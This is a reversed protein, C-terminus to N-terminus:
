QICPRTGVCLSALCILGDSNAASFPKNCPWALLVPPELEFSGFERIIKLSLNKHAFNPTLAAPHIVKKQNTPPSTVPHHELFRTSLRFNGDKVLTPAKTGVSSSLFITIYTRQPPVLDRVWLQAITEQNSRRQKQM